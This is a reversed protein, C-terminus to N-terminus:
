VSVEAIKGLPAGCIPCFKFNLSGTFTFGCSTCTFYSKEPLDNGAALAAQAERFLGSHVKEAQRADEFAYAALGSRNQKALDAADPYLSESEHNENAVSEAVSENLSKFENMAYFFNRAHHYESDSAAAFLQAIGTKKNKIADEKYLRYRVHALCEGEFAKRLAEQVADASNTRNKNFEVNKVRHRLQGETNFFIEVYHYYPTVIGSIEDMRSGGGGTVILRIGNIEDEFYSHVHGCLIYKIKHRYPAIIASVKQWDGESVTDQTIRNPPPIHFALVINKSEHALARGLFALTEDTFTRDSDDLVVLLLDSNYLFYNKRGFFNEYDMTDHNGALMYIPKSISQDVMATVIGYFRDTGNPVIDGGILVFDGESEHLAANFVSMIEVGLGSCGPDGIFTFGKVPGIRNEENTTKQM